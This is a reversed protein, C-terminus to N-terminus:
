WLCIKCWSEFNNTIFLVTWIHISKRIPYLSKEGGVSTNDCTMGVCLTGHHFHNLCVSSVCARARQKYKSFWLPVIYFHWLLDNWARGRIRRLSVALSGWSSCQLINEKHIDLVSNGWRRLIGMTRAKWSTRGPIYGSNRKSGNFWNVHIGFPSQLSWSSLVVSM